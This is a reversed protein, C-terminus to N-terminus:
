VYPDDYVHVGLEEIEYPLLEDVEDPHLINGKNDQYLMLDVGRKTSINRKQWFNRNGFL